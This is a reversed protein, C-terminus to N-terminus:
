RAGALLEAIADDIDRALMDADPVAERDAYV